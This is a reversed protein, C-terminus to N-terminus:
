FRTNWKKILKNAARKYKDPELDPLYGVREYFSVCGKACKISLGQPGCGFMKDVVYDMKAESGCFPCKKLTQKNLLEVIKTM